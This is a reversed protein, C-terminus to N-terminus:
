PAAVKCARTPRSPVMVLIVTETGPCAPDPCVIENGVRGARAGLGHDQHHHRRARGPGALDGRRDLRHLALLDDAGEPAAHDQSDVSGTRCPQARVGRTTSGRGAVSYIRRLVPAAGLSGAASAAARSRRMPKKPRRTSSGSAASTDRDVSGTRCPQARVGRTTSGRGAVSYIRRLVPSTISGGGVRRGQQPADAEETEQHQQRERRQHRPARDHDQARVGRTTSGRGAVSYIRRLV